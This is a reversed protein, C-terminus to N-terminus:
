TLLTLSKLFNDKESDNKLFIIKKKHKEVIPLYKTENHYKYKQSWYLLKVLESLPKSQKKKRLIERKIINCILRLRNSKLVIILDAKKLAPYIYNEAYVGDLIWKKKRLLINLNNIEKKDSFRIKFDNSYRLDDISRSSVNIINGIKKGLTTKGSGGAGLILIRKFM